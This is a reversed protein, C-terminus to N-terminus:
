AQGAPTIPQPGPRSDSETGPRRSTRGSLSINTIQSGSPQDVGPTPMPEADHFIASAEKVGARRGSIEAVKNVDL